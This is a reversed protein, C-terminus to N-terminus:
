LQFELVKAEEHSSNVRISPPIPPLLLLPCRLILHSFPMVSKISMFKFSSQSNTISLSAQRATIMPDCLTPCSQAVSSFQVVNYLISLCCPGVIYSLSSYEIDQLLKFHFFFQFLIYIDMQIYILLITYKCVKGHLQFM